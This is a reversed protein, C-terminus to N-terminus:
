LIELLIEAISANERPEDGLWLVISESVVHRLATSGTLVFGGKDLSIPSKFPALASLHYYYCFAFLSHSGAGLSLEWGCVWGM